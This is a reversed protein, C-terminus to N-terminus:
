LLNTQVSEQGMQEQASCSFVGENQLWARLVAEDQLTRAHLSSRNAGGEAAFMRM